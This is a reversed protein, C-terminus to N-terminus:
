KTSAISVVCLNMWIWCCAALRARLFFFIHPKRHIHPTHHPSKKRLLLLVTVFSVVDWEADACATYKTQSFHTTYMSALINKISKHCATIYKTRRLYVHPAHAHKQQLLHPSISKNLPADCRLSNRARARAVHYVFLIFHFYVHGNAHM